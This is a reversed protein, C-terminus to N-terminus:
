LLCSFQLDRALAYADEEGFQQAFERLPAVDTLHLALWAILARTREHGIALTNGRHDSVSFDGFLKITLLSM